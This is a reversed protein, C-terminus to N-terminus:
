FLEVEGAAEPTEAMAAGDDLLRALFRQRVSSLSQRDLMRALLAADPAVAVDLAPAAARTERQLAETAEGLAGLADIVHNLHQSTRDQFQTGTVLQAVTGEMAAAAVHAEELVAALARHQGAMGALVAELRARTAAEAQGDRAAIAQLEAQAGRVGRAVAVIRDRVLRSTTDTEQSLAKLEMAIVRFTGGAGAARSAEIAANLAVFRAQRNIAEIRAVCQEAGAVEAEVAALAQAMRGAQGAVEGMADISQVLATEVFRTAELMPLPAGAVEITAAIGAIRAVRGAQSEAAEALDRFHASLGITSREILGASATVEEVMALFARREIESLELWRRLLDHLPNPAEHDM